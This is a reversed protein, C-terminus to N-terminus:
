TKENRIADVRAAIAEVVNELDGLVEHNWYRLVHIEQDALYRSRREDYRRSDVANHQGGDLEIALKLEECYFDLVYPPLPHQRRFKLGLFRRNRLLMWLLQEADSQRQRLNRAFDILEAYARSHPPHHAM